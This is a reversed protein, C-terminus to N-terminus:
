VPRLSRAAGVRGARHRAGAIVLLFAAAQLKSMLPSPMAQAALALVTPSAAAGDLATQRVAAVLAPPVAAACDGILVSGALAAPLTLGREPWVGVYAADAM